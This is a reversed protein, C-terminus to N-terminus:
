EEPDELNKDLDYTSVWDKCLWQELVYYFIEYTTSYAVDFITSLDLYSAGALLRLTMAVKIEGSIYGSSTHISAKMMLSRKSTSAMLMKIYSESLFVEPGVNQEITRCLEKFCLYPMRFMRRFHKRSMKEVMMSFEVRTAERRRKAFEAILLRQKKKHTLLVINLEHIFFSSLVCQVVGYVVVCKPVDM